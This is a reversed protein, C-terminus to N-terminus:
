KRTRSSRTLGRQCHLALAWTQRYIVAPHGRERESCTGGCTMTWCTRVPSVRYEGVPLPDEARGEIPAPIDFMDKLEKIQEDEPPAEPESKKKLSRKKPVFRKMSM